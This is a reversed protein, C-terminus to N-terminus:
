PKPNLCRVRSMRILVGYFRLLVGLRVRLPGEFEGREGRLFGLGPLVSYSGQLVKRLVGLFFGKM